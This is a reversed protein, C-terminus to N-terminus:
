MICRTECTVENDLLSYDIHLCNNVIEFFSGRGVWDLFISGIFCKLLKEDNKIEGTKKDYKNELRNKLNQDQARWFTERGSFLHNQFFLRNEKKRKKEKRKL